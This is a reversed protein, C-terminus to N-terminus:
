ILRENKKTRLLSLTITHSINHLCFKQSIANPSKRSVPDSLRNWITALWIRQEIIILSWLRIMIQSAIGPIESLIVGKLNCWACMDM